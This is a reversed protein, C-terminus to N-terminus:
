LPVHRAAKLSHGVTPGKARITERLRERSVIGAEDAEILYAGVFLGVQAKAEALAAPAAEADLRAADEIARTWLNGKGLYVVAGDALRNATLIKM